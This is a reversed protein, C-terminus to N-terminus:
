APGITPRVDLVEQARPIRHPGPGGGPIIGAHFEKPDLAGVTTDVECPYSHKSAYGRKQHGALTVGAGAELLRYYPVWLELDEYGDEALVVVKKGGLTMPQADRIAALNKAARRSSHAWRLRYSAVRSRCPPRPRSMVDFSLKSNACACRLSTAHIDWFVFVSGTWGAM